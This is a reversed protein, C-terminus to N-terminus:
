LRSLTRTKGHATGRAIMSPGGLYTFIGLKCAIKEVTSTSATTFDFSQLQQPFSKTQKPGSFARFERHLLANNAADTEGTDSTSTLGLRAMLSDISHVLWGFMALVMHTTLLFHLGLLDSKTSKPAARYNASTPSEVTSHTECIATYRSVSIAPHDVIDDNSATINAM